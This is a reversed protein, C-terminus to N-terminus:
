PFSPPPIVGDETIQVHSGSFSHYAATGMALLLFAALALRAKM